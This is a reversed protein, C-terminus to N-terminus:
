YIDMIMISIESSVIGSILVQLLFSSGICDEDKVRLKITDHDTEQIIKDSFTSKIVWDFDVDSIKNGESDAFSVTYTRPYGIKLSKSGEISSLVSTEDLSPPSIPKDVYDAIWVKEGSELTIYKDKNKNFSGYSLTLNMLGGRYFYQNDSLLVKRNTLLYIDPVIADNLDISFRMDRSLKKTELDVPITLGYQNDGIPLINNGGVGSAYKTFDESYCWRQIIDGDSNQWRLIVTCLYMYGSNYTKSDPDVLMIIWKQGNWEIYDGLNFKDEHRSKIKKKHSNGDTDKIILLEFPEDNKKVVHYDITNSFHDDVHKNLIYLASEQKSSSKYTNNIKQFYSIDM